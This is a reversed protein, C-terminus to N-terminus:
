TSRATHIFPAWMHPWDSHQDRIERAADRLAHVGDGRVPQAGARLSAVHGYLGRVVALSHNDSIPWLTAIVQAFGANQFATGLTIGEDPIDLAGQYTACASLVPWRAHRLHLASVQRITLRGDHLELGGDLPTITDTVGHASFHVRTHIRLAAIVADVTATSGSLHTANSFTQLLYEAEAAASPLDPHDPTVPMSVILLDHRDHQAPDTNDNDPRSM